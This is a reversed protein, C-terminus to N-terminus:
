INIYKYAQGEERKKNIMNQDLGNCISFYGNNLHFGIGVLSDKTNIERKEIIEIGTVRKDIAFHLDELRNKEWKLDLDTGYWCLEGPVTIEDFSVAYEDWKFACLEIQCDEFRIIVSGDNFWKDEDQDWAVWIEEVNKGILAEFRTGYDEIINSANSYIKPKYNNIGFM